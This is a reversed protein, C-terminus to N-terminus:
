FIFMQLTQLHFHILYSLAKEWKLKERLKKLWSQFSVKVTAKSECYGFPYNVIFFCAKQNVHKKSSPLCHFCLLLLNTNVASASRFSIDRNKKNQMYPEIMAHLSNKISKIACLM